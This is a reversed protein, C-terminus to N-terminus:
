HACDLFPMKKKLLRIHDSTASGTDYAVGETIHCFLEEISLWDTSCTPCNFPPFGFRSKNM